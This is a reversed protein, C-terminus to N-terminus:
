SPADILRCYNIISMKIFLTCSEHLYINYAYYIIFSFKLFHVVHLIFLIEMNMDDNYCFKIDIIM